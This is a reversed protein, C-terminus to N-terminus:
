RDRQDDICVTSQMLILDKGTFILMADEDAARATRILSLPAMKRALPQWHMQKVIVMDEELALEDIIRCIIVM